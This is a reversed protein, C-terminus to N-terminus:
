SPGRRFLPGLLPDKRALRRLDTRARWVMKKASTLSIGMLEAAEILPLGEVHYLVFALRRRPGLRDLLLHLRALARQHDLHLPDIPRAAPEDVTELSRHKNRRNRRLHRLSTRVVLRNLWSGLSAQGRFQHISRLAQVFVEQVVDEADTNNGVIRAALRFASPAYKRYLQAKAQDDSACRKAFLLDTQFDVGIV